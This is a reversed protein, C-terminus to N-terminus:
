ASGGRELALYTREQDIAAIIKPDLRRSGNSKWGIRLAHEMRTFPRSSRGVPGKEFVSVADHPYAGHVAEIAFIGSRGCRRGM